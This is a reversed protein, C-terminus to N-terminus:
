AAVGCLEPTAMADTEEELVGEEVRGAEWLAILREVVSIETHHFKVTFGDASYSFGYRLDTRQEELYRAFDWIADAPVWTYPLGSEEAIRVILKMIGGTM